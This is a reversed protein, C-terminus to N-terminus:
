PKEVTIRSILATIKNIYYHTHKKSIPHACSETLGTGWDLGVTWDCTWDVSYLRISVALM